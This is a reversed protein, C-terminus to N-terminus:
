TQASARREGVKEASGLNRRVAKPIPVLWPEAARGATGGGALCCGGATTTTMARRRMVVLCCFFLVGFCWFLVSVVHGFQEEAPGKERGEIRARCLEGRVVNCIRSVIGGLTNYTAGKEEGGHVHIYVYVYLYVYVVVVVVLLAGTCGGGGGRGAGEVDWGWFM